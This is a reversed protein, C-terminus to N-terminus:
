NAPRDAVRSEWGVPQTWAEQVRSGAAVPNAPPKDSRIVARVYLEHGRLRYTAKTAQFASFVKGIEPSYKRVTRAPMRPPSPVDIPRGTPDVGALTGRFEITYRAGPEPQVAVTLTKAQPNYTAESLTV